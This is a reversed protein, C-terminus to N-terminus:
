AERVRPVTSSLEFVFLYIRNACHRAIMRVKATVSLSMPSGQIDEVFPVSRLCQKPEGFARESADL